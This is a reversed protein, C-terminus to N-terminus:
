AQTRAFFDRDKRSFGANISKGELFPSPIAITSNENISMNFFQKKNEIPTVCSIKNEEMM